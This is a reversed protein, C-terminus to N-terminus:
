FLCIIIFISYILSYFCSSPFYWLICFYFLCMWKIILLLIMEDMFGITVDFTLYFSPPYLASYYLIQYLPHQLSYWLGFSSNLLLIEWAAKSRLSKCMIEVWTVIAQLVRDLSLLYGHNEVILSCLFVKVYEIFGALLDKCKDLYFSSWSWQDNSM